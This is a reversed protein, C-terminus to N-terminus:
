SRAHQVRDEVDRRVHDALDRGAKYADDIQDGLVKRVEEGSRPALLIAIIVGVSLSIATAALVLLFQQRQARAEAEKSYYMRDSM